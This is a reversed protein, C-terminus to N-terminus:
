CFQAIVQGTGAKGPNASYGANTQVVVIHPTDGSIQAGTKTTSGTVLVGM